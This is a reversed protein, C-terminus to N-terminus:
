EQEGDKIEWDIADEICEYCGSDYVCSENDDAHFCFGANMFADIIAIKEKQTCTIKM